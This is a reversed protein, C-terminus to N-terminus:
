ETICKLKYEVGASRDVRAYIRMTADEKYGKKIELVSVDNTDAPHLPMAIILQSTTEQYTAESISDNGIVQTESEDNFSYLCKNAKSELDGAYTYINLVKSGSCLLDVVMPGTSGFGKCSSVGCRARLFYDESAMLPMSALIIVAIVLILKM